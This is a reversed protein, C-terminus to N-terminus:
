FRFIVTICHIIRIFNLGREKKGVQKKTGELMQNTSHLNLDKTTSYEITDKEISIPIIDILAYYELQTLSSLEKGRYWWHTPRHVPKYIYEEESDYNNNKIKYFPAPGFSTKSISSTLYKPDVLEETYPILKSNSTDSNSSLYTKWFKKM